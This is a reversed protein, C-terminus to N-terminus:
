ATRYVADQQAASLRGKDWLPIFEDLIDGSQEAATEKFFTELEEIFKASEPTFSKISQALVYGNFALLFFSLLSATRLLPKLLARAM